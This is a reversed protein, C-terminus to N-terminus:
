IFNSVSSTSITDQSTCVQTTKLYDYWCAIHKAPSFSRDSFSLPVSSSGRRTRKASLIRIIVDTNGTNIDLDSWVTSCREFPLMLTVDGDSVTGPHCSDSSIRRLLKSLIALDNSSTSTSRVRWRLILLPHSSQNQGSIIPDGSPWLVAYWLKSDTEPWNIRPSENDQVWSM